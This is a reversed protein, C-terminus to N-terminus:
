SLTGVEIKWECGDYAVPTWEIDISYIRDSFADTFDTACKIPQNILVPTFMYM